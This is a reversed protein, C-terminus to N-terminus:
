MKRKKWFRTRTGNILFSIDLLNEFRWTSFTQPKGRGCIDCKGKIVKVLKQTKPNLNEYVNQKMTETHHRGGVRWIKTTLRSFNKVIWFSCERSTINRKKKELNLFKVSIKMIVDNQSFIWEMKEIHEPSIGEKGLTDCFVVEVEFQTNEM